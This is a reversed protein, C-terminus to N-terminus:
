EIVEGYRAIEASFHATKLMFITFIASLAMVLSAYIWALNKLDVHLMLIGALSLSVPTLAVSILLMLSMIIPVYEIKYYSQYVRIILINGITMFFDYSFLSLASVFITHSRSFLLYCSSALFYTLAALTIILNKGIDLRILGVLITAVIAGLAMLVQILTYQALSGHYIIKVFSPVFVQLPTLFINALASFLLILLILKGYIMLDKIGLFLNIKNKNPEAIFKNIAIGAQFYTAAFLMISAILVIVSLDAYQLIQAALLPAVITSIFFSMNILAIVRHYNQAITMRQPLNFLINDFISTGLNILFCASMIVLFVHKPDVCRFIVYCGIYICAKIISIYSLLKNIGTTRSIYNAFPLVLLYPGANIALFWALATLHNHGLIQWIFSVIVLKDAIQVLLQSSLLKGMNKIALM